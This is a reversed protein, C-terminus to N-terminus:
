DWNQTVVRKILDYLSFFVVAVVSYIIATGALNILSCEKGVLPCEDFFSLLIGLIFFVLSLFIFWQIALIIAKSFKFRNPSVQDLLDEYAKKSHYDKTGM